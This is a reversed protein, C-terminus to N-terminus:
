VLVSFPKLLCLLFCYLLSRLLNTCHSICICHHICSTLFMTRWFTDNVSNFSSKIFHLVFNPFYYYFFCCTLGDMYHFIYSFHTTVFILRWCETSLHRALIFLLKLLLWVLCITSHLFLSSRPILKACSLCASFSNVQKHPM